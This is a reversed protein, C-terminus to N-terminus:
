PQRGRTIFAPLVDALTPPPAGSRIVGSSPRSGPARHPESRARKPAPAPAGAEVPRQPAHQPPGGSGRWPIELTLNCRQHDLETVTGQWGKSCEVVIDATWPNQRVGALMTQAAAGVGGPVPTMDRVAIIVASGAGALPESRVWLGHDGRLCHWLGRIFKAAGPGTLLWTAERILRPDDIQITKPRSM